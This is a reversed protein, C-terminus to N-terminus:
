LSKAILDYIIGVGSPLKNCVLRPDQDTCVAKRIEFNLVEILVQHVNLLNVQDNQLQAEMYEDAKLEPEQQIESSPNSAELASPVFHRPGDHHILHGIEHGIVWVLLGNRDNRALSRYVDPCTDLSARADYSCRWAEDLGRVSLFRKIFGVDCLIINDKGTYLCNGKYAAPFLRYSPIKAPDYL